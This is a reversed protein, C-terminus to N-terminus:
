GWLVQSCGRCGASGRSHVGWLLEGGAAPADGACMPAGRPSHWPPSLGVAGVKPPALPCAAEGGYGHVYMLVWLFEGMLMGLM